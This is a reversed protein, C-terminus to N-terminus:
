QMQVDASNEQKKYKQKMVDKFDHFFSKLNEFFSPEFLEKYASRIDVPYDELSIHADIGPKKSDLNESSVYISQFCTKEEKRHFFTLSCEKSSACLSFPPDPIDFKREVITTEKMRLIKESLDFKGEIVISFEPFTIKYGNGLKEINEPAITALAKKNSKFFDNWKDIIESFTKDDGTNGM